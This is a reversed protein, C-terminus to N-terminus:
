APPLGPEALFEDLSLDPPCGAALWAARARALIEGVHPGKSVGRALVDAGRLPFVPVAEETEAEDAPVAAERLKVLADKARVLARHAATWAPFEAGTGMEAIMASLQRVHRDATDHIATMTKM